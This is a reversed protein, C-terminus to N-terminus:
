TLEQGRCKRLHNRLATMGYPYNLDVALYHELFQAWSMSVDSARREEFERCASDIQDVFSLECTQCRHGGRRAKTTKLFEDVSRAM